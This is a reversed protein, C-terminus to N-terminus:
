LSCGTIKEANGSSVLPRNRSSSDAHRSRPDGVCPARRSEASKRTGLGRKNRVFHIRVHWTRTTIANTYPKGSYSYRAILPAFLFRLGPQKPSSQVPAEGAELIASQSRAALATVTELPLPVLWGQSVGDPVPLHSGHRCIRVGDDCPPPPSPSPLMAVDVTRKSKARMTPGEHASDERGQLEPIPVSKMRRRQVSTSGRSEFSQGNTRITSPARPDRCNAPVLKASTLTAAVLVGGAIMDGEVIQAPFPLCATCAIFTARPRGSVVASHCGARNGLQSSSPTKM